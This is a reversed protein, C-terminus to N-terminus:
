KEMRLGTNALELLIQAETKDSLQTKEELYHQLNSNGNISMKVERNKPTFDQLFKEAIAELDAENSYEEIRLLPSEIGSVALDDM